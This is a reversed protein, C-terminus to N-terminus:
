QEGQVEMSVAIEHIEEIGSVMKVEGVQADPSVIWAQDPPILMEQGADDVYWASGIEHNIM